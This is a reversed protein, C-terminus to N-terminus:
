RELRAGCAQPDFGAPWRTFIGSTAGTLDAETLDAGTFDCEWLYSNPLDAERLDAGRFDCATFTAGRLVVGYWAANALKMGKGERGLLDALEWMRGASDVLRHSPFPAPVDSCGGDNRLTFGDHPLPIEAANAAPGWGPAPVSEQRPREFALLAVLVAVLGILEILPLLRAFGSRALM